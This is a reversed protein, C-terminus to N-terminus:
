FWGLVHSLVAFIAVIGFVVAAIKLRKVVFVRDALREERAKESEIM